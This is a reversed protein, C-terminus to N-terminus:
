KRSKKKCAPLLARRLSSKASEDGQAAGVLETFSLSMQQIIEKRANYANVLFSSSLVDATNETAVFELYPANAPALFSLTASQYGQEQQLARAVAGMLRPQAIGATLAAVKTAQAFENDVVLYVKDVPLCAELSSPSPTTTSTKNTTAPAAPGPPCPPCTSPSPRQVDNKATPGIVAASPTGQTNVAHCAPLIAAALADRRLQSGIDQLDLSPIPLRVQVREALNGEADTIGVTFHAEIAGIPNTYYLMLHPIGKPKVYSEIEVAKGTANYGKEHLVQFLFDVPLEDLVSLPMTGKQVLYDLEKTQLCEKTGVRQVLTGQYSPLKALAASPFLLSTCLTTASAVATAKSLVYDSITKSLAM